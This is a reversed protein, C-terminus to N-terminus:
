IRGSGGLGSVSGLMGVLSMLRGLSDKRFRLPILCGNTFAMSIRLFGIMGPILLPSLVVRVMVVYPM